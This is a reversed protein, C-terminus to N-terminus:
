GQSARRTCMGREVSRRRRPHAVLRPRLVTPRQRQHLPVIGSRIVRETDLSTVSEGHRILHTLQETWLDHKSKGQTSTFADDNIADLLLHAADDYLHVSILWAIVTEKEQPQIKLYRRYVRHIAQPVNTHLLHHLYAPWVWKLHQTLPLSALARDFTHRTRTLHPQSSLFSCYLQWIRPMKHLHVLCREFCLNVAEYSPFTPPFPAVLSM